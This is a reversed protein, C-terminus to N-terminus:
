DGLVARNAEVAWPQLAEIVEPPMAFGLASALAVIATFVKGPNARMWETARAMM